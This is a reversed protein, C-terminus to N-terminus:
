TDLCCAKKCGLREFYPPPDEVAQRHGFFETKSWFVAMKEMFFALIQHRCMSCITNKHYTHGQSRSTRM